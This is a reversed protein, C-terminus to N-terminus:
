GRRLDNQFVWYFFAFSGLAKSTPFPKEKKKKTFNVVPAVIPPLWPCRVFLVPFFCVDWPCVIGLPLCRRGKKPLALPPWGLPGASGRRRGPFATGAAPSRASARGGRQNAPWGASRPGGPDGLGGARKGPSPELPCPGAARRRM